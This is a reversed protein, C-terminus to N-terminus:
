SLVQQTVSKAEALSANLPQMIKHEMLTRKAKTEIQQVFVFLLYTGHNILEIVVIM